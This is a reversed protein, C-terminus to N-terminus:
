EDLVTPQVVDVVEETLALLLNGRRGCYRQPPMQEADAIGAGAGHLVAVRREPIDRQEDVVLRDARQRIYLRVGSGESQGTGADRDSGVATRRPGAPLLRREPEPAAGDCPDGDTDGAPWILVHFFFQRQSKRTVSSRDLDRPANGPIAARAVIATSDPQSRVMSPTAAQVPPDAWDAVPDCRGVVPSGAGAGPTSVVNGSCMGGLAKTQKGSGAPIPM